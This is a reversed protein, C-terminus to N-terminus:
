EFTETHLLHIAEAIIVPAPVIVEQDHDRLYDQERLQRLDRIEDLTQQTFPYKRTAVTDSLVLTAREIVETENQSTQQM